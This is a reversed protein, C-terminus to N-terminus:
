DIELCNIIARVAITDVLIEQVEDDTSKRNQRFAVPINGLQSPLCYLTEKLCEIREKLWHSTLSDIKFRLENEELYATCASGYWRITQHRLTLYELLERILQKESIDDLWDKLEAETSFSIRFLDLEKLLLDVKGNKIRSHLLETYPTAIAQFAEFEQEDAVSVAKQRLFEDAEDVSSTINLATVSESLGFRFSLYSLNCAEYGNNLLIRLSYLCVNGIFLARRELKIETCAPCAIVDLGDPLFEQGECLECISRSEM